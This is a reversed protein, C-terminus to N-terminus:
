LIRMLQMYSNYQQPSGVFGGTIPGIIDEDDGTYQTAHLQLFAGAPLAVIAQGTLVVGLQSVATTSGYQADLAVLQNAAGNFFQVNAEYRENSNPLSNNTILLQYNVVYVGATVINFGFGVTDTLFSPHAPFGGDYATDLSVTTDNGTLMLQTSTFPRGIWGAEIVSSAGGASPLVQECIGAQPDARICKIDFTINSM